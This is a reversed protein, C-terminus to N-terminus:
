GGSAESLDPSARSLRCLICACGLSGSFGADASSLSRLVVAAAFSRDPPRALVDAERSIPKSLAFADGQPAHGVSGLLRLRKAGRGLSSSATRIDM